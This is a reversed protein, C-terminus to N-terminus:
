VSNPLPPYYTEGDLLADRAALLDEPGFPQVLYGAAGATKAKPYVSKPVIPAQLLIPIDRLEPITQFRRCIEYGTMEAMMIRVIIIDPSEAEAIARAEQWSWATRITDGRRRGLILEVLEPMEKNEEVLLVKCGTKNM